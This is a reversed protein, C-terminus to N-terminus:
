RKMDLLASKASYVADSLEPIGYKADMNELTQIVGKMRFIDWNRNDSDQKKKTTM